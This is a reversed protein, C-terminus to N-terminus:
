HHKLMLVPKIDSSTHPNNSVTCQVAMLTYLLSIVEM